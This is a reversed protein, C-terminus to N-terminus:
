GNSELIESTADLVILKNQMSFGAKNWYMVKLGDMKLM